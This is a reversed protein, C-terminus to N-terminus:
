RTITQEDIHKLIFYMRRQTIKIGLKNLVWRINKKRAKTAQGYWYQGAAKHKLGEATLTYCRETLKM